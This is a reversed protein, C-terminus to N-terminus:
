RNPAVPWCAHISWRSRRWWATTAFRSRSAKVVMAHCSRTRPRRAAPAPPPRRPSSPDAPGPYPLGRGVGELHDLVTTGTRLLGAIAKAADLVSGGGIGAVVDIDADRHQAVAADVLEPSPEGDVVVQSGTWARPRWATSCSDWHPTSQLSARGTVLLVRRGFCALLGPLQELTGDGFRIEPLRAVQFAAFPNV